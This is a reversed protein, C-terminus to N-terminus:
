LDFSQAQAPKIKQFEDVFRKADNTNFIEFAVCKVENDDVYTFILYHEVSKSIITKNTVTKKRARGGIAAGLPGLLMYGAVARGASSVYQDQKSIATQIESDTKIAIDTLKEFSLNYSTGSAEFLIRDNCWYCNTAADKAVPLGYAHSGQCKFLANREELEQQHVLRAQEAAQRQAMIIPQNIKKKLKKSFVVCLIFLVICIIGAATMVNQEASNVEKSNSLAIYAIAGVFFFVSFLNLFFRIVKYKKMVVKGKVDKVMIVYGFFIYVM